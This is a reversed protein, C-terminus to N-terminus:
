CNPFLRRFRRRPWNQQQPEEPRPPATQPAKHSSPHDDQSSSHSPYNQSQPPHKLPHHPHLQSLIHSVTTITPIMSLFHSLNVSNHNNHQSDKLLINTQNNIKIYLMKLFAYKSCQPAPDGMHASVWHHIRARPSVETKTYHQRINSGSANM